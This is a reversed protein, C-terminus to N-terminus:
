ELLGKLVSLCKRASKEWSYKMLVNDRDATSLEDIKSLDVDYEHPAIDNVADGFLERMVPIDSVIIKKVGLAMAELPPLGFGEYLSPFIFASCHQMLACADADSIFGLLHVNKPIDTDDEEYHKGGIAYVCQPNKRANEIIWKGNKNKARTALSFFFQGPKLFPYREQWDDSPRYSLVHQWGPFIVQIKGRARPYLREIEQKSFESVTLILREHRAIYSYQLMHWYRSLRNRWTTYHDPYIRYMVDHITTIGPQVCLPAVNCLNLCISQPHKKLYKRLDTQEWRIGTHTGYTDVHISQFSPVDKANPPVLLTISLDDSLLRDMAQVIEWAYRVIGQMRDAAFKGNIIYSKQMQCYEKHKM